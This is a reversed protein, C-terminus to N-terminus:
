ATSDVCLAECLDTFQGIGFEVLRPILDGVSGLSTLANGGSPVLETIESFSRRDGGFVHRRVRRHTLSHRCTLLLQLDDDALLAKLWKETAPPVSLEQSGSGNWFEVDKFWGSKNLQGGAVRFVANACLDLATKVDGFALSMAAVELTDWGADLVSQVAVIGDAGSSLQEVLSRALQASQLNFAAWALDAGAESVSEGFRAQLLHDTDSALKFLSDDPM